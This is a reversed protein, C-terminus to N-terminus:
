HSKSKIQYKYILGSYTFKVWELNSTIFEHFPEKKYVYDEGGTKPKKGYHRYENFLTPYLDILMNILPKYEIGTCGKTKKDKFTSEFTREFAIRKPDKGTSSSEDTITSINRAVAALSGVKKALDRDFVLNFNTSHLKYFLIRGGNAATTATYTIPRNGFVFVFPWEEGWGGDIISGDTIKELLQSFAKSDYLPSERTLNFIIVRWKRFTKSHAFKERIMQKVTPEDGVELLLADFESVLMDISDSKGLQGLDDYPNIAKKPPADLNKIAVHPQM